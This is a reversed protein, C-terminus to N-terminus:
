LLGRLWSVIDVINAALKDVMLYMLEPEANSLLIATPKGAGRCYGLELHASRGCPMVLIAVDCWELAAFDSKYGAQALPHSLAQIYEEITWQQWNPDIEKWHFGQDGEEPNRFDYVEHGERRLDAVVSPQDANRWSSAVYIKM